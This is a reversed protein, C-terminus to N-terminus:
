HPGAETFTATLPCLLTPPGPQKALATGEKKLAARPQSASASSRSTAARSLHPREGFRSCWGPKWKLSRRCLMAMFHGAAVTFVALTHWFSRPTVEDLRASAGLNSTKRVQGTPEEAPLNQSRQWNLPSLSLSLSLAHVSRRNPTPCLSSCFCLWLQFPLLAGHALSGGPAFPNRCLM